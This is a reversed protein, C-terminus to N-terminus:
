KYMNMRIKNNVYAHLNRDLRLFGAEGSLYNMWKQGGVGTGKTVIWISDEITEVTRAVEGPHFRHGVLTINKAILSERDITVRIPDQSIEGMDIVYQQNNIVPHYPDQFPFQFRLADEFFAPIREKSCGKESLRCLRTKIDYSHYNPDKPDYKEPDVRAINVGTWVSTPQAM